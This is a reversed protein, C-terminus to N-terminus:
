RGSERQNGSVWPLVWTAPQAAFGPCADRPFKRLTSTRGLGVLGASQLRETDEAHTEGFRGARLGGVQGGRGRLCRAIARTELGAVPYVAPM